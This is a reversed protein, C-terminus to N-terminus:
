TGNSLLNGPGGFFSGHAAEKADQPRIPCRHVLAPERLEGCFEAEAARISRVDPRLITPTATKGEQLGVGAPLSRLLGHCEVATEEQEAVHTQIGAVIQEAPEGFVEAAECVIGRIFLQQEEGPLLPAFPGQFMEEAIKRKGQPIGHFLAEPARAIEDPPM